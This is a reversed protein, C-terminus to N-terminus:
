LQILVSFINFGSPYANVSVCVNFTPINFKSICQRQSLYELKSASKM